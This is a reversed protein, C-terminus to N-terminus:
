FKYSFNITFYERFQIKDSENTFYKLETNIRTSLFRNIRMDFILEWDIQTIADKSMYGVFADLKSKLNLETSIKWNINNIISAGNNFAAKKDEDVKYRTQDVKSTDMVFTVKSTIPSLLLTFDKSKKFDMGLAFTFYAPSMFGSIIQDRNKNNYGNFFQSKYDFVFSYYWKKSAKIGYKSNILIQDTNIQAEYNETNIIGVKHQIYNEWETKNQKYNARLLLNSRLAISNEGGKSWNELHTQSLQINEVGSLTWPGKKKIRKNLKDPSDIKDYLLGTIGERASRKNLRKRDLILRHPEPITKWVHQVLHPKEVFFEQNKKKLSFADGVTIKTDGSEEAVNFYGRDDYLLKDKVLTPEYKIKLNNYPYFKLSMPVENYKRNRPVITLVQNTNFETSDVIFFKHDLKLSTWYKTRKKISDSFTKYNKINDIAFGFTQELTQSKINCVNILVFFVSLLLNLNFRYFFKM